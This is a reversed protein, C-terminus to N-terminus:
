RLLRGPYAWFSLLERDCQKTVHVDVDVSDHADTYIISKIYECPIYQIYYVRRYGIIRRRAYWPEVWIPVPRCVLSARLGLFEKTVVHSGGPPITGQFSAEPVGRVGFHVPVRAANTLAIEQNDNLRLAGGQILEHLNQAVDRLKILFEAAEHQNGRGRYKRLIQIAHDLHGCWGQFIDEADAPDGTPGNFEPPVLAGPGEKPDRLEKDPAALIIPPGTLHGVLTEALRDFEDTDDAHLNELKDFLHDLGAPNPQRPNDTAGDGAAYVTAFFVCALVLYVAKM